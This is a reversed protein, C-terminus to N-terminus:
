DSYQLSLLDKNLFLLNSKIGAGIKEKLVLENWPIMLDDVCFVIEKNPSPGSTRNPNVRAQSENIKMDPPRLNSLPMSPAAGPVFCAGTQDSSVMDSVPKADEFILNLSQCDLFYQKALSKFSTNIKVSKFRPPHLPSLVCISHPGNLRSDPESLNGPEGLLDVLYERIM